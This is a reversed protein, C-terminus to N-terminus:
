TAKVGEQAEACGMAGCPCVVAGALGTNLATPARGMTLLSRLRLVGIALVNRPSDVVIKAFVLCARALEVIARPVGGARAFLMALRFGLLLEARLFGGIRALELGHQLVDRASEYNNLRAYYSAWTNAMLTRGDTWEPTADFLRTAEDIHFKAQEIVGFSLLVESLRLHFFARSFLNGDSALEDARVYRVLADEINGNREDLRGLFHVSMAVADRMNRTELNEGAMEICEEFLVAARKRETYFYSWGDRALCRVECEYALSPDDAATRRAYQSWKRSARFRSRDIEIQSLHLAAEVEEAPTRSAELAQVLIARRGGGAGAPLRRFRSFSIWLAATPAGDVHLREILIMLDDALSSATQEDLRDAVGTNHLYSMSFDVFSAVHDQNLENFDIQAMERLNHMLQGVRISSGGRREIVQAAREVSQARTLM